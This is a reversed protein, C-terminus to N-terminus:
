DATRARRRQWWTMALGGVLGGLGFVTVAHAFADFAFPGVHSMRGPGVAGGALSMLIGVLAGALVGGACGRIAGDEWRTTPRRRQARAAGLAAVVAPIALLGMTWGPPTGSDPLAALLPFMPLPGLVVISPTVITQTGVTFGPGLLYSGSFLAANPVFLGTVLVFMVAEGTSLHLEALVNAATGLDLLLAVVLTLTSALLFGVVITRCTATTARLNAPLFTAWIAARGSGVAIGPGGSGLAIVLSWMVARTSGLALEPDGALSATLVTVAAYGLAFLGAAVPVTWDRAGDAIADADPGHGSISDGIRHGIRWTAWACVLTLLLPVATVAAGQVQVGSGHAMLWAVAGVRLGDRPAGHSGADSAFWGVEGLALCVLLVSAAATAGGLSALLVLPRRHRTDAATATRTPGAGTMLSTM